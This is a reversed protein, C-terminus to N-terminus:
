VRGRAGLSGNAAMNAAPSGNGEGFVHGAGKVSRSSIVSFPGSDKRAIVVSTRLHMRGEARQNRNLQEMEPRQEVLWVRKHHHLGAGAVAQKTAVDEGGGCVQRIPEAFRDPVNGAVQARQGTPFLAPRASLPNHPICQAERHTISDPTHQGVLQEVRKGNVADAHFM